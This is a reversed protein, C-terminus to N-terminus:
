CYKRIVDTGCDQQGAHNAKQSVYAVLVGPRDKAIAEPKEVESAVGDRYPSYEYGTERRGYM